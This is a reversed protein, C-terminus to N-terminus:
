QNKEMISKINKFFLEFGTLNGEVNEINKFIRKEKLEFCIVKNKEAVLTKLLDDLDKYGYDKIKKDTENM